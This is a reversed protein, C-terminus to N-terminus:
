AITEHKTPHIVAEISKNVLGIDLVQGSGLATM